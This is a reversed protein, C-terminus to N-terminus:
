KKKDWNSTSVTETDLLKDDNNKAMVCFSKNWGKRTKGMTQEFNTKM